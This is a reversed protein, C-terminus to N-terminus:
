SSETIELDPRQREALELYISAGIIAGLLDAAIALFYNLWYGLTEPSGSVAFLLYSLTSFPLFVVLLIALIEWFYGEVLKRSRSFVDFLTPQDEVALVQVVLYLWVMAIIGPIIFFFLGLGILIVSLLFAMLIRPLRPLLQMFLQKLGTQEKRIDALALKVTVGDLMVIGLTQIIPRLLLSGLLVFFYLPKDLATDLIKELSALFLLSHLLVIAETIGVTILVVRLLPKLKVRLLDFARKFVSVFVGERESM